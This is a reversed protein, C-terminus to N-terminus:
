HTTNRYQAMDSVFSSLSIVNPFEFIRADEGSVIYGYMMEVPLMMWAFIIDRTMDLFVSGADDALVNTPKSTTTQATLFAAGDVFLVHAYIAAATGEKQGISDVFAVTEGQVRKECVSQFQEWLTLDCM